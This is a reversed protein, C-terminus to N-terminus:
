GQQTTSGDGSDTGSGPTTEDGDLDPAQGTAGDIPGGPRGHLDGGPFPRDGPAFGSTHRSSDGHDGVAYGAGFGIGGVALGIVAAGAAIATRGRGPHRWSRKPASVPEESPIESTEPIEPTNNM